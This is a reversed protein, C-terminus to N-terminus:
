FKQLVEYQEPVKLVVQIPFEDHKWISKSFTDCKENFYSSEVGVEACICFDNIILFDYNEKTDIQMFDYDTGEVLEENQLVSRSGVLVFDKQKLHAIFESLNM